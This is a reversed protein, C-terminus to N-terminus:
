CTRLRAENLHTKPVPTRKTKVVDILDAVPLGAAAAEIFLQREYAETARLEAKEEKTLKPKKYGISKSPNFPRLHYTGPRFTKRPGEVAERDFARIEVQLEDTNKARIATTGTIFYSTKGGIFADDFVRKAAIAGACNRPNLPEGRQCDEKTVELHILTDTDILTDIERDAFLSKVTELRTPRQYDKFSKKAPAELVPILLLALDAPTLHFSYSHPGSTMGGYQLPVDFRNADTKWTKVKGSVRAKRADGQRSLFMIHSNNSLYAITEAVDVPNRFTEVKGTYHNKVEFTAVASTTESAELVASVSM